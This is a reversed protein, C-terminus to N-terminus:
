EGLTGFTMRDLLARQLLLFILAVPLAMMLALAALQSWPEASSTQYVAWVAMALTVRQGNEVFLWGFAFESYAMLFAILSAVGISPLALPLTIRWFARFFGAGDLFAAEELERPVAQFAARMNWICFPMAFASYVLTLGFLTTRVGLTSLLIFLPTTMAVPPLLATLLLVFLGAQRGPFRFRAFAYALSSGLGATLLAAGGATLLSNGLLGAFDIAQSPTNWMRAFVGLTFQQPLLHFETPAGRLSGDFALRFMYWIPLLVFVGVLILIAQSLVQKHLPLRPKGQRKKLSEHKKTGAQGREKPTTSLSKPM